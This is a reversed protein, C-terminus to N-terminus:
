LSPRLDNIQWSPASNKIYQKANATQAATKQLSASLAGLNFVGAALLGAFFLAPWFESRKPAPLTPQGDGLLMRAIRMLYATEVLTAFLVIALAWYYATEGTGLAANVLALKAWFGPLPPV